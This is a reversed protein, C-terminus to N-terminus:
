TLKPVRDKLNGVTLVESITSMNSATAHGIETDPWKLLFLTLKEQRLTYQNYLVRFFNPDVEWRIRYRTIFASVM